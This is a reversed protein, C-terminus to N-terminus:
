RVEVQRDPLDDRHAAGRVFPEEVAVGGLVRRQDAVGQRRDAGAVQRVPREVPQGAAFALPHEDGAGEGLPGRQQDEVFRGVVQVDPVLQVDQTGQPPQGRRHQERQVVQIQGGVVAVTQVHQAVALDHGGPRGGLHEGGSQQGLHVPDRRVDTDMGPRPRRVHREQRAPRGGPRVGRLTGSRPLRAPPPGAPTCDEGELAGETELFVQRLQELVAPGPKEWMGGSEAELLREAIGHLAWPNAQQLFERNAPDLVYTETLKDYMWDALVGTTADYGFLYDVTAALEFAGKYGHRRMAEIWKP